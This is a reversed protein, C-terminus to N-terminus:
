DIKNLQRKVDEYHKAVKIISKSCKDNGIGEFNSSVGNAINYLENIISQLERKISDLESKSKADM